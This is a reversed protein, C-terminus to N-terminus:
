LDAIFDDLKGVPFGTLDGCTGVLLACLNDARQGIGIDGIHGQREFAGVAIGICVSQHILLLRNRRLSRNVSFAVTRVTGLRGQHPFTARRLRSPHTTNWAKGPSPLHCAAPTVSSDHELGERALSPPAGCAHRILRRGASMKSPNSDDDREGGKVSDAERGDGGIVIHEGVVFIEFGIGACQTGCHCRFFRM